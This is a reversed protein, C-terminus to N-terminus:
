WSGSKGPRSNTSTCIFSSFESDSYSRGNNGIDNSVHSTDYKNNVSNNIRISCRVTSNNDIIAMMFM